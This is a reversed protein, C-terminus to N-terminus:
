TPGGRLTSSSDDDIQLIIKKGRIRPAVSVSRLHM